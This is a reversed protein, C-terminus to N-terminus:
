ESGLIQKQSVSETIWYHSIISGMYHRPMRDEREEQSLVAAFWFEIDIQEYM